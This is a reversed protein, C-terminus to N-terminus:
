SRTGRGRLQRDVTLQRGSAQMIAETIAPTLIERADDVNGLNVTGPFTITIAVTFGGTGAAQGVAAAAANGGFIAAASAASPPLVPPAVLPGRAALLAYVGEVGIATRASYDLLQAFRLDEALFTARASDSGGGRTPRIATALDEPPADPPVARIADLVTLIADRLAADTTGKGLAILASEAAKRGESTGLDFGALADSIEKSVKGAAEAFRQARTVPDTIGELDLDFNAEAFANALKDALTEIAVVAGDSASEISLLAERFEDLTMGAAAAAAAMAEPDAFLSEIYAELADRGEQTKVDFKDIVGILGPFARKMADMRIAFQEIPDTIDLAEIYAEAAQLINERKKRVEDAQADAASTADAAARDSLGLLTRFFNLVEQESEDIGDASATAFWEQVRERFAARGEPTNIDIGAFLEGLGPFKEAFKKLGEDRTRNFQSITDTGFIDFEAALLDMADVLKEAEGAASRFSDRVKTLVAIQAREADTLEGDAAFGDIIAQISADFAELSSLDISAALEPFLEAFKAKARELREAVTITGFELQLDLAEMAAAWKDSATKAKPTANRIAEIIRVIEELFQEPNLGGLQSFDLADANLGLEKLAAAADALYTPSNPDLGALADRIAPIGNDGTLIKLRALVGDVGAFADPDLRAALELKRLQGELGAFLTALTQKQLYEQLQKIQDLTPNESLQIGADSAIARLEELGVGLKKLDALVASVSRGVESTLGSGALVGDTIPRQETLAVDRVAAVLGGGATFQVAKDLSLKLEALRQNNAKQIRLLEQQEPSPESTQKRFLGAIAIGGGLIAGIGPILSAAGGSKSLLNSLSGAESVKKAVDGFGASMQVINGLMRATTSEAGLFATAIGFAASAMAQLLSASKELSTETAVTSAATDGGLEAIAAKLTAIQAELALVRRRSAEDTGSTAAIEREKDFIMAQLDLQAEMATLKETDVARRVDKLQAQLAEDERTIRILEEQLDIARAAAAEDIPGKARLENITGLLEELQLELNDINSATMSAMLQRFTQAAKSAELQKLTARVETAKANMAAFAKTQEETPNKIATFKDGLERVVKDFRVLPEEAQLVSTALDDFGQAIDRMQQARTDEKPAKARREELRGLLDLVEVRRATVRRLEEEQAASRTQLGTLSAIAANVIDLEHAFAQALDKARQRESNSAQGAATLRQLGRLEQEQAATVAAATQTAADRRFGELEKIDDRLSEIFKGVISAGVGGVGPTNQFGELKALRDRKERLQAEVNAARGQAKTVESDLQAALDKITALTSRAAEEAEERARTFLNIVAHAGIGAATVLAGGTGIVGILSTAGLLVGKLSRGTLAGANVINAGADVIQLTAQGWRDGFAKVAAGGERTKKTQDEIGGALQGNGIAIAAQTQALQREIGIRRELSLNGDALRAKLIGEIEALRQLSETRTAQIQTGRSYLQVQARLIQLGEESVEAIHAIAEAMADAAEEGGGFDEVLKTVEARLAGIPIGAEEAVEALEELGVVQSDLAAEGSATTRADLTFYLKQIEVAQAM